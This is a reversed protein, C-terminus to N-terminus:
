LFSSDVDLEENDCDLDRGEAVVLAAQSPGGPVPLPECVRNSPSPQQHSETEAALDEPAGAFGKLLSTARSKSEASDGGQDGEEEDDDEGDFSRPSSIDKASIIPMSPGDEERPHTPSPLMSMHDAGGGNGTDDKYTNNGCGNNLQPQPSESMNREAVEDDEQEMAVDLHPNLGRANRSIPTQPEESTATTKMETCTPNNKQAATPLHDPPPASSRPNPQIEFSDTGKGELDLHAPQQEDIWAGIDAALPAVAATPTAKMEAAEDATKVKATPTLSRGHRREKRFERWRQKRREEEEKRQQMALDYQEKVARQAEERQQREGERKAEMRLRFEERREM